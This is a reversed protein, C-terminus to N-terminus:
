IVEVGSWILIGAILGRVYNGTTQIIRDPFNNRWELEITIWTSGDHTISKIICCSGKLERENLKRQIDELLYVGHSINGCKIQEKTMIKM